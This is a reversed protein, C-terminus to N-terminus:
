NCKAIGNAFNASIQSTLVDGSFGYSDVCYSHSSATSLLASHLAYDGGYSGVKCLITKATQKNIARALEIIKPDGCVIDGGDPISLLLNSYSTKQTYYQMLVPSYTNNDSYYIEAQKRIESFTSMVNADTGKSKANSLSSLIISSLVGIISIVVLLEILTFGKKM